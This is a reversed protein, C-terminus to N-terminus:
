RWRTEGLVGHAIWLGFFALEERDLSQAAALTVRRALRQVRGRTTFGARLWELVSRWYARYHHYYASSVPGIVLPMVPDVYTRPTVAVVLVKGFQTVPKIESPPADVIQALAEGVFARGYETFKPTMTTPAAGPAAPLLELLRNQLLDGVGMRDTLTDFGPNQRVFSRVSPSVSGTKAGGALMLTFLDNQKAM